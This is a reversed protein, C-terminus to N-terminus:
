SPELLLYGKGSDFDFADLLAPSRNFFVLFPRNSRVKRIRYGAPLLAELAQRSGLAARTTESFEMLVRPRHRELTRRLGALVNSEFGEVDIKVLDVRHLGLSDLYEDGNVVRLSGAPRNLADHEPIFSGAGTNREDASFYPLEETAQSLGVPHVHVNGVGNARLREEMVERVPPYPEFSHVETAHASMFLTHHGVNAGVDLFVGGGAAHALDRLLFLEEREYAGYFFVMWDMYSSLNGRYRRGYFPAEYELTPAKSPPVFLRLVRDRGGFRIWRQRAVLRLLALGLRRPASAGRVATGGAATM